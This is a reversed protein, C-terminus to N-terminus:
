IGRLFWLLVNPWTSLPSHLERAQYSTTPKACILSTELCLAFLGSSPVQSGPKLEPQAASHRPSKPCSNVARQAETELSHMFSCVIKSDGRLESIRQNSINGENLFGLVTTHGAHSPLEPIARLNASASPLQSGLARLRVRGSLEAPHSLCVM